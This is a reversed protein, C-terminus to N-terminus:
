ARQEALIATIAGTKQVCIVGAEELEVSFRQGFDGAVMKNIGKNILFAAAQPGASREKNSVPNSLVESLGTETDFFHYYPARAGHQDIQADAEASTAAIAIKMIKEKYSTIEHISFPNILV